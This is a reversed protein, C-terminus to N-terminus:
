KIIKCSVKNTFNNNQPITHLFFETEEPAIDKILTSVPTSFLM